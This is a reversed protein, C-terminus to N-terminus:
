STANFFATFHTAPALSSCRRRPIRGRGDIRISRATVGVGGAPARDFRARIRLRVGSDSEGHAIQGGWSSEIREADDRHQQLQDDRERGDRCWEAQSYCFRCRRARATSALVDPSTHAAYEICRPSRPAPHAVETCCRMATMWRRRKPPIVAMRHSSPSRECLTTRAHRARHHLDVTHLM